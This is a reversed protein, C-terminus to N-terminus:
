NLETFGNKELLANTDVLNLGHTIAYIIVADRNDRYYLIGTRAIVLAKQIQTFSLGAAICLTIIKDRGPNRLGNIIQYFYTREIRCKRVLESKALGSNSICEDFYDAFGSFKRDNMDDLYVAIIDDRVEM